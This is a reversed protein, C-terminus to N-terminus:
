KMYTGGGLSWVRAPVLIASAVMPTGAISPVMPMLAPLSLRILFQQATATNGAVHFFIGNIGMPTQMISDRIESAKSTHKYTMKFVDGLLKDMNTKGVEKYSVHITGNFQPFDINIWYPNETEEGFFTSDRTVKAYVPYEFTYPYGPKDFLTYEHAPFDIKFYGKPKPTYVSNCAAMGAAIMLCLVFRTLLKM